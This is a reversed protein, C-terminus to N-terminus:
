QMTFDYRRCFKIAEKCNITVTEEKPENEPIWIIRFENEIAYPLTKSFYEQQRSIESSLKFIEGFDFANDQYSM